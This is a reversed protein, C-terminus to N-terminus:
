RVRIYRKEIIYRSGDLDVNYPNYVSQTSTPYNRPITSYNWARGYNPVVERVIVRSRTNARSDRNFYNQKYPHHYIPQRVNSRYSNYTRYHNLSPSSGFRISISVDAFASGVFTTMAGITAIATMIVKM